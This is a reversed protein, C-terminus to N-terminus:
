QEPTAVPIGRVSARAAPFANLDSRNVGQQSLQCDTVIKFEECRVVIENQYGTM